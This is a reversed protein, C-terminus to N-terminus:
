MMNYDDKMKVTLVQIKRGIISYGNLGLEGDRKEANYM